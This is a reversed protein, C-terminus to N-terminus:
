VSNLDPNARSLLAMTEILDRWGPPVKLKQLKELAYRSLRFAGLARGLKALAWFVHAKSTGRPWSQRSAYILAYRCMSLLSESSRDTFPDEVYRYVPHYVYFLNALELFRHFNRYAARQNVDFNSLETEAPIQHLYHQALLWNYYSADSYREENVSNKALQQLVKLADDLRGAKRFNEEAEVFRDNLALWHAYPLNVKPALEPYLETLRFAEEFRNLEAYVTVLHEVDGMKLLTEIICDARSNKRFYLICRSLAKTDSNPIKRAVEMLQDLWGNAGLLDIATVYEGVESYTLAAALLDNKNAQSQAKRKLIAGRDTSNEEAIQVAKEWLNLDAFLDIAKQVLGAKRFLDVAESYREEYCFIEALLGDKTMASDTKWRSLANLLRIFKVDKLRSFAKRAVVFELGEIASLALRRWDLETAGACAILYAADFDQTEVIAELMTTVSVTVPYLTLGKLCFAKSGLFAVVVGQMKRPHSELNGAKVRLFEGSSYCIINECEANWTVSQVRPEQFQLEKTRLDFVQLVQEADIVAIKQRVCNLEMKWVTSMTRVLPLPFSSWLFLELVQGNALGVLLGERGVPGGVVMVCSVDEELHWDRKRTGSFDYLQVVAKQCIILNESTVLFHDCDIKMPIKERIRYHMDSNDNALVEYIIIRESLQVALRGSFLSVNRVYDRCKIRARQDTVLNQIIVDTFSDRYAFRDKFVDIVDEFTLRYIAVTGDDCGVALENRNSSIRCARVAGDFSCIEDVRVGETTWLSLKRDSGGVLIYEGTNAVTLINPECGLGRDRGIQKGDSTFFALKQNWDGVALVEDTQSSPPVWCVTWVASNGRDIRFIEEGTSNRVSVQGNDLGFALREGDVSWSSCLVRADIKYKAVSKQQESWLAFDSATASVIQGTNPNHAITQIADTHQYKLIAEGSRNWIIVTKDAGGSAFRGGTASWDVCYIVDKHSRLTQVLEGDEVNYLLLNHGCAVVLLSGDPYTADAKLREMYTKIYKNAKSEVEPTIASNPNREKSEKRALHKFQEKAMEKKWQSLVKAVLPGMAELIRFFDESTLGSGFSIVNSSLVQHTSAQGPLSLNGTPLVSELPVDHTPMPQYAVPNPLRIGEDVLPHSSDGTPNPSRPSMSANSFTEIQEESELPPEPPSSHTDLQHPADRSQNRDPRYSDMRRRLPPSESRKETKKQKKPSETSGPSLSADPSPMSLEKLGFAMQSLKRKPIKYRIELESWKDFVQKALERIELDGHEKSLLEVVEDIKSDVLSNTNRTIIPVLQCTLAPHSRGYDVLLLKLQTMARFKLVDRWVPVSTTAELRSLLGRIRAPKESNRTLVRIVKVVDAHDEIGKVLKPERPKKTKKIMDEDDDEEGSDLGEYDPAPGTREGGIYGRCNQSGCYCKQAEHGYRQFQYDFTLEEGSPLDDLTRLGFGKPGANFIEVRAYQQHQLRRNQCAAGTPCDTCEVYLERNICGSNEGCAASAEDTAPNYKCECPWEETMGRALGRADGRYENERVTSFTRMAEETCQSGVPARINFEFHAEPSFLKKVEEKVEEKIDEKLEEKVELESTIPYNCNEIPSCPTLLDYEPMVTKGMKDEIGSM